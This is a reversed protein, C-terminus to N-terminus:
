RHGFAAGVPAIASADVRAGDSARVALDGARTIADRDPSVVTRVPDLGMHELMVHLLLAREPASGCGRALVEDPLAIRSDDGLAAGTALGAVVEIAQDAGALRLAAQRALPGRRAAHLYPGLDPVDLSRFALLAETAAAAGPGGGAVTSGMLASIEGPSTCALAREFLADHPSPHTFRMAGADVHLGQPAHGFFAAVAEITRELEDPPLASTGARLDATGRRSVVRDIPSVMLALFADALDGGHRAEARDRFERATLLVNKGWFWWADDGSWAFVTAHVRSSLMVIGDLRSTVSPQTMLLAAFLAAEDVCSTLDRPRRVASGAEHRAAHIVDINGYTYAPFRGEAIVQELTDGPPLLGRARRERWAFHVQAIADDVVQQGLRRREEDLDLLGAVEAVREPTVHTFSADIVERAATLPDPRDGVRRALRWLRPSMANAMVLPLLVDPVAVADFLNPAVVQSPHM